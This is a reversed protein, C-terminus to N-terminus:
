QPVVPLSAVFVVWLWLTVTLVVIAAALWGLARADDDLEDLTHNRLTEDDQHSLDAVIRHLRQSPKLEVVARRHHTTCHLPTRCKDRGQRCDGRCSASTHDIDLSETLVPLGTEPDTIVTDAEPPWHKRPSM